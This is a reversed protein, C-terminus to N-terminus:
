NVLTFLNSQIPCDDINLLNDTVSIYLSEYADLKYPQSVAKIIKYNQNPDFLHPADNNLDYAHLALSTRLNKQKIYREHEKIRYHVARRTQGIYKRECM